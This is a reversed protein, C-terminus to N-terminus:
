PVGRSTPAHSLERQMASAPLLMIENRPTHTLPPINFATIGAAAPPHAIFHRTGHHTRKSVATEGQSCRVEGFSKEGPVVRMRAVQWPTLAAIGVAHPYRLDHQLLGPHGSHNLVIVFKQASKRRYLFQRRGPFGRHQRCPAAQSVVTSCAHQVRCGLYHRSFASARKGLSGFVPLRQRSDASVRRRGNGADSKVLWDSHDIAVYLADQLPDRSLAQGPFRDPLGRLPQEIALPRSVEILRHHLQPGCNARWPRRPAQSARQNPQARRSSLQRAPSRRSFLSSQFNVVRKLPLIPGDEQSLSRPIGPQHRPHPLQRFNWWWLIM